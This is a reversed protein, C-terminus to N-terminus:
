GCSCSRCLERTLPLRLGLAATVYTVRQATLHNGSMVILNVGFGFGDLGFRRITGHPVAFGWNLANRQGRLAARAPDSVPM